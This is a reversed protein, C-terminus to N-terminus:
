SNLWTRCNVFISLGVGRKNDGMLTDELRFSAIRALECVGGLTHDAAIAQEVLEGIEQVRQRSPLYDTGLHQVVISVRLTFTEDKAQLGSVQWDTNWDDVEGSVWVNEDLLELPAGLTVQGDRGLHVTDAVLAYLADQAAWLKSRVM